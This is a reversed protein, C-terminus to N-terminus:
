PQTVPKQKEAVPKAAVPPKFTLVADDSVLTGTWPAAPLDDLGKGDQTSVYLVNLVYEGELGGLAPHDQADFHLEKSLSGNKPVCLFDSVDVIALTAPDLGEAMRKLSARLVVAREPPADKKRLRVAFSSLTGDYIAQEYGRANELRVTIDFTNDNRVSRKPRAARLSLGRELTDAPLKKLAEEDKRREQRQAMREDWERLYRERDAPQRRSLALRVEAAHEIAYMCQPHSLKYRLPAESSPETREWLFFLAQTGQRPLPLRQGALIALAPFSSSPPAPPRSSGSDAASNGPASERNKPQGPAGERNLLDSARQLLEKEPKKGLAEASPSKLIELVKLRASNGEGQGVEAVVILGARQLLESVTYIQEGSEPIGAAAGSPAPSTGPAEGAGASACSWAASGLLLGRLIGDARGRFLGSGAHRALAVPRPEGGQSKLGM